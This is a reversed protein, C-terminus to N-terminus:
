PQAQEQELVRIRELALELAHHETHAISLALTLASEHRALDTRAEQLLRLLAPLSNRAVAALLMDERENIWQAANEGGMGTGHAQRSLHHARVYWPAPAAPGLESQAYLEELALTRDAPEPPPILSPDSM